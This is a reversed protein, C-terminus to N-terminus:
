TLRRRQKLPDVRGGEKKLAARMYRLDGSPEYANTLALEMSNQVCMLM